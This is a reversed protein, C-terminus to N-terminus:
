GGSPAARLGGIHGRCPDGPIMHVFLFVIVTIGLMVPVLSILRRLILRFM